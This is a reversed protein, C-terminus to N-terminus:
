EFKPVTTSIKAGPEEITEVHIVLEVEVAVKFPVDMAAGWTAPAAATYKPMLVEAVGLWTTVAKTFLEVALM